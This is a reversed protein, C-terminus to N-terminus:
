LQEVYVTAQGGKKTISGRVIRTVKFQAGQAFIVEGDTMLPHAPDPNRIEGRLSRVLESIDKAATHKECVLTVSFPKKAAYKRAGSEAVSWSDAPKNPLPTYARRNDALFGLFGAEDPWALGRFVPTDEPMPLLRLFLRWLDDFINLRGPAPLIDTGTQPDVERTFAEHNESWLKLAHRQFLGSGPLDQFVDPMGKDWSEVIKAASLPRSGNPDTFVLADAKWEALGRLRKAIDKRLAQSTIAPHCQLSANPSDAPAAPPPSWDQPLVGLAEAESYSV